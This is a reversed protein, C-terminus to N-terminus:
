TIWNSGDISLDTEQAIACDRRVIIGDIGIDIPNQIQIQYAKDAIPLRYQCCELLAQLTHAPKVRFSFQAIPVATL